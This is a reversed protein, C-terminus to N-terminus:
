LKRLDIPKFEFKFNNKCEEFSNIIRIKSKNKVYLEAIIYNNPKYVENIKINNKNVM